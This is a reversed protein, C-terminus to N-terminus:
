SKKGNEDGTMTDYSQIMYNTAIDLHEQRKAKCKVPDNCIVRGNWFGRLKLAEARDRHSQALALRSDPNYQKM